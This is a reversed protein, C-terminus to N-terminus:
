QKLIRKRHIRDGYTIEILFVGANLNTLEINNTQKLLVQDLLLQGDLSWLKMQSKEVKPFSVTLNNSTPNPFVKLNLETDLSEKPDNEFTYQRDGLRNGGFALTTFTDLTAWSSTINGASDCWARVTWHYSSRFLM